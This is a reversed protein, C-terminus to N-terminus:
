INRKNQKVNLKRSKKKVLPNLYLIEGTEFGLVAFDEGCYDCHYYITSRYEFNEDGSVVIDEWYDIPCKCVKFDPYEMAIDGKQM